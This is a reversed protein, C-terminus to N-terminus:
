VKFPKKIVLPLFARLALTKVRGQRSLEFLLDQDSAISGGGGLSVEVMNSLQGFVERKRWVLEGFFLKDLVQQQCFRLVLGVGHPWQEGGDLGKESVGDSAIPFRKERDADGFGARQGRHQGLFFDPRQQRRDFLRVPVGEKEREVRATQAQAVGTQEGRPVDVGVSLVNM